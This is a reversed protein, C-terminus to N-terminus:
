NPPQSMFVFLFLFRNFTRHVFFIHQMGLRKKRELNDIIKFELLSKALRPIFIVVLFYSKNTTFSFFVILYWFKIIWSSLFVALYIDLAEKLCFFVLHSFLFSVSLEKHASIIYAQRIRYNTKDDRILILGLCICSSLFFFRGHFGSFQPLHFLTFGIM